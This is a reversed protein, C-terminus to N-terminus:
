GSSVQDPIRERFFLPKRLPSEIHPSQKCVDWLDQCSIDAALHTMCTVLDADNSHTDMMETFKKVWLSGSFEDDGIVNFGPVTARLVLFDAEMPVSIDQETGKRAKVGSMFNDREGSPIFFVKPKGVLTPCGSANFMDKLEKFPVPAANADLVCHRYNIIKTETHIVCVFADFQSHDMEAVRALLAIMDTKSINRYLRTDFELKQFTRYLKAADNVYYRHIEEHPNSKPNCIIIAMGKPNSSVQYEMQSLSGSTVWLGTEFLSELDSLRGVDSVPNSASKKEASCSDNGGELSSCNCRLDLKNQRQLQKYIQPYRIKIAETIHSLNTLKSLRYSWKETNSTHTNRLVRYDDTSVAGHESLHEALHKVQVNEKMNCVACVNIKSPKAKLHQATESLKKAVDPYDEGIAPIFNNMLTAYSLRGRMVDLFAENRRRSTPNLAIISEREDDTLLQDQMLRDLICTCEISVSHLLDPQCLQFVKLHIYDADDVGTGVIESKDIELETRRNRFTQMLLAEMYKLQHFTRTLGEQDLDPKCFDEGYSRIRDEVNDLGTHLTNHIEHLIQRQLELPVDGLASQTQSILESIYRNRAGELPTVGPSAM